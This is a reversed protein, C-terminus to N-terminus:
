NAAHKVNIPMFEGVKMNTAHLYAETTKISKHNLYAQVNRLDAGNALSHTAFSHRLVHPTCVKTIGAKQAAESIWNRLGNDSILDGYYNLFLPAKDFQNIPRDMFAQVEKWVDSRLPLLQYENGKRLLNVLISGDPAEIFDCWCLNRAESIRMGTAALILGFIYRKEEKQRLAVLLRDIEESVLFKEAVRNPVKRQKVVVFPNATVLGCNMAFAFFRTLTSIKRQITAPSDVGKLYSNYEIADFPSVDRLDKTSWVFFGRIAGGYTKATGASSERSLFYEVVQQTPM